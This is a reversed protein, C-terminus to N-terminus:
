GCYLRFAAGHGEAAPELLLEGGHSLAIQRAIGLGIGSGGPKLTFLPRFIMEVHEAAVGAGSDSVRLWLRAGEAGADLTVAPARGPFALAAEAGNTLLATLAQGILDPDIGAIIDPEPCTLVFAVGHARWRTEFLLKVDRLLLCVSTPRPVAAPVRALARFSQVFRDLGRARRGITELADVAQAAGEQTGAALLAGASDALSLVPTLSNMIEHSLTQLLERLAAAEAEQLEPQIDVLTALLSPGAGASWSAVSLAYSREPGGRPGALKLVTRQGPQARGIANVLAAPADAIRDDSQFLARAARNVADLAGQASLSVLPVPAHDLMFRLRRLEAQTQLPDLVPEPPPLAPPDRRLALLGLWLAACCALATNGYLGHRLATAAAIGSAFMAAVVLGRWLALSSAM